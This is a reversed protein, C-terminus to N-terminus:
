ASGPNWSPSPGDYTRVRTFEVFQRYQSDQWSFELFKAVAAQKLVLMRPRCIGLASPNDAKKLLLSFAMGNLQLDAVLLEGTKPHIRSQFLFSSSHYTQDPTCVYMGLPAQWTSRGFLVDVWTESVVNSQVIREKSVHGSAVMGCLTKLMWREIDEGSFVAIADSPHQENFDKDFGGITRFLRGAEADLPSLAQNHRRCLIRAALSAPPISKETDPPQWHM